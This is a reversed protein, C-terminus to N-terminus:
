ITSAFVLDELDKETIQYNEKIVDTSNGKRLYEIADSWKKSEANLVPKEKVKKVNKSDFDLNNDKIDFAIQLLYRESYTVCGGLQQAVNTAKIAPIETAMEFTLSSSGDLDFIVLQAMLGLDTRILSFKHFLKADTCAENVLHSIQEPTFYKYKSFENYGQKEIKTQRISQRADSLKKITENM